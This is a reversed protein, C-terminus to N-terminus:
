KSVSATSPLEVKMQLDFTSMVFTGQGDKAIGRLFGGKTEVGFFKGSCGESGRSMLVFLGPEITDKGGASVLIEDWERNGFGRMEPSRLEM